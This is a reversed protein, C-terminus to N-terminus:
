RRSGERRADFATAGNANRVITGGREDHAGPGLAAQIRGVNALRVGLCPYAENRALCSPARCWGHVDPVHDTAVQEALYWMFREVGEPPDAALRAVDYPPMSRRVVGALDRM